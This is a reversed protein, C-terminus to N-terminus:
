VDYRTIFYSDGMLLKNMDGYKAFDKMFRRTQKDTLTTRLLPQISIVRYEGDM